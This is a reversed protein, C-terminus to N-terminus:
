DPQAPISETVSVVLPSERLVSAATQDIIAAFSDRKINDTNINIYAGGMEVSARLGERDSADNLFVNVVVREDSRLQQPLDPCVRATRIGLDDGCGFMALLGVALVGWSRM